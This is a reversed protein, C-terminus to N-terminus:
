AAARLPAPRVSQRRAPRRAQSSIAPAVSPALADAFPGSRVFFPRETGVERLAALNAVTRERYRLWTMTMSLAALAAAGVFLLTVFTTAMPEAKADAKRRSCAASPPKHNFVSRIPQERPCRGKSGINVKQEGCALVKL